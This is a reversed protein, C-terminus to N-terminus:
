SRSSTPAGPLAGPLFLEWVGSSGLLRMPHLRGDWLNFDGVVRVSRANPAWVAFSTGSVGDIERPHAGLTQWLRRHKGEGLLHLDVEGVTPQFRYPDDFDVHGTPYDAELRYGDAATPVVAYFLGGEHVQEMDIRGGDALLVRMAMASPRLARVVTVGDAQHRGLLRHPNKHEGSILQAIEVTLDDPRRLLPEGM